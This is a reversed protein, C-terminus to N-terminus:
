AKKTKRPRAAMVRGCTDGRQQPPFDGIGARLPAEACEPRDGFERAVLVLGRLHAHALVRDGDHGIAAANRQLEIGVDPRKCGLADVLGVPILADREAQRFLIAGHVAAAHEGLKASVCLRQAISSRSPM